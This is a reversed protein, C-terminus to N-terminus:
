RVEAVVLEKTPLLAANLIQMYAKVAGMVVDSHRVEAPIIRGEYTATAIVKASSDSGSGEAHIGFSVDLSVGTIAAIAKCAADIPGNGTKAESFVDEPGEDVKRVMVATAVPITDIGTVVQMGKISWQTPM